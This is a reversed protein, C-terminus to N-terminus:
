ENEPVVGRGGGVNGGVDLPLIKFPTRTIKRKGNYSELIKSQTVFSEKGM